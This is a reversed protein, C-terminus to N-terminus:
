RCRACRIALDTAPTPTMLNKEPRLGVDLRREGMVAITCVVTAAAGPVVGGSTM